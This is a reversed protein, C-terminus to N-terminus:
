LCTGCMVHPTGRVPANKGSDMGPEVGWGQSRGFYRPQSHGFYRPVEKPVLYPHVDGLAGGDIYWKGVEGLGQVIAAM